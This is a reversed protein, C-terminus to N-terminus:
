TGSASRAITYPSMSRAALETVGFDIIVASIYHRPTANM